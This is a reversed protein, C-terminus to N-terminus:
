ITANVVAGTSMISLHNKNLIEHLGSGKILQGHIVLLCQEIHLGGLMAFYQHEGFENPMKWQVEKTLAYVPQDSVDAPTQLPNLFNITKKTIKM